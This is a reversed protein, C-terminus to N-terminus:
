VPAVALSPPGLTRSLVDQQLSAPRRHHEGARMQVVIGAVAREILEAGANLREPYQLEPTTFELVPWLEAPPLNERAFTDVHASRTLAQVTDSTM